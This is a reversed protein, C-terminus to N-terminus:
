CETKAFPTSYLTRATSASHFLKNKDKNQNERKMNKEKRKNRHVM